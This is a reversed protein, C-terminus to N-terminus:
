PKGFRAEPIDPDIETKQFRIELRAPLNAYTVEVVDAVKLGQVTTYSRTLTQDRPAGKEDLRDSRVELYTRADLYLHTAHGKHTVKLKRSPAKV